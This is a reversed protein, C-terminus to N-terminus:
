RISSRSTASLATFETGSYAYAPGGRPLVRVPRAYAIYRESAFFRPHCAQLALVERGRSKLVALDDAAVIRHGTIRYKFTGYPLEITVPDGPRLHDIASFPASYTTRHGAVYILKGEGPLFTSLDRAPGKKLTDTQTGNVVVMDLGLRPIEIRGIADGEHLSRRYARAERAIQLEFEQPTRERVQPLSPAHFDALRHEYEDALQRQEWYTYVATFPDQWRWVLVVWTLVLVGAVVMLTGLWRLLTRAHPSPM